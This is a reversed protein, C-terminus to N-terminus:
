RQQERKKLNLDLIFIMNKSKYRVDTAIRHSKFTFQDMYNSWEDTATNMVISIFAWGM